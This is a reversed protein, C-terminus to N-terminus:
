SDISVKITNFNLYNEYVGTIYARSFNEDSKLRFRIEEGSYFEIFRKNGLKKLELYYQSFCFSPLCIFFVIVNFRM